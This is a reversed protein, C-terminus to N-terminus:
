LLILKAPTGDSLRYLIFTSNFNTNRASNPIVAHRRSPAVVNLPRRAATFLNSFITTFKTTFIYNKKATASNPIIAYRRSPSLTRNPRLLSRAKLSFSRLSFM